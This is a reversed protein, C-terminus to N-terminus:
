VKMGKCLAAGERYHEGGKTRPIRRSQANQGDRGADKTTQAPHGVGTKCLVQM